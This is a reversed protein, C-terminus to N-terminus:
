LCVVSLLSLFPFAFSLGSVGFMLIADSMGPRGEPDLDVFLVPIGWNLSNCDVFLM